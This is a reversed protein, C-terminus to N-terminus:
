AYRSLTPPPASPSSYGHKTAGGDQFSNGTRENQVKLRIGYVHNRKLRHFSGVNNLSKNIISFYTQITCIGVCQYIMKGLGPETGGSGSVVGWPWSPLPHTKPPPTTLTPPRPTLQGCQPIGEGLEFKVSPIERNCARM